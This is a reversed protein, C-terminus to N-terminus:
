GSCEEPPDEDCRGQVFEAVETAVHASSPALGCRRLQCTICLGDEGRYYYLQRRKRCCSCRGKVPGFMQRPAEGRTSPRVVKPSRDQASEVERVRAERVYADGFAELQDGFAM